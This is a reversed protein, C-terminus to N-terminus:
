FCMPAVCTSSLEEFLFLPGAKNAWLMVMGGGEGQGFEMIFQLRIYFMSITARDASHLM